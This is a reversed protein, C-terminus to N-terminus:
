WSVILREGMVKKMVDIRDGKAATGYFFGISATAFGFLIASVSALTTYFRMRDDKALDVVNFTLWGRWVALAQGGVLVLVILWDLSPRDSWVGRVPVLISRIRAVLTKMLTVM